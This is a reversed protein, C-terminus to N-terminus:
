TTISVVVRVGSTGLPPTKLTLVRVHRIHALLADERITTVDWTSHVPRLKMLPARTKVPEEGSKVGVKGEDHEFVPIM